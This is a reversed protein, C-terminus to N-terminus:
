SQADVWGRARHLLLVVEAGIKVRWQQNDVGSLLRLAEELDAIDEEPSGLYGHPLEHQADEVAGLVWDIIARRAAQHDPALEIARRFCDLPASENGFTPPHCYRGELYCADADDPERDRWEMVTPVVLRTRLPQPILLGKDVLGKAATVWCVFVRRDEFDRAQMAAIFRDLRTLADQRRGGARLRCYDAFDGWAPSMDSAGAILALADLDANYPM